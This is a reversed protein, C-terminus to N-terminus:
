WRSRQERERPKAVQVTITRGGLDSRDLARIAQEADVQSGMEVFGFGRSEGTERDTLIKVEVVHGYPRFAASLQDETLAYPLGGVFLKSSM